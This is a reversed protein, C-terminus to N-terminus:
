LREQKWKSKKKWLLQVAITICLRKHWRQFLWLIVPSLQAFKDNRIDTNLTFYQINEWERSEIRWWMTFTLHRVKERLKEESYLLAEVRKANSCFTNQSDIGELNGHSKDWLPCKVSYSFDWRFKLRKHFGVCFLPQTVRVSLSFGWVFIRFALSERLSLSRKLLSPSSSNQRELRSSM